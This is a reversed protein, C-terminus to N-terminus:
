GVNKPPARFKELAETDAPDPRYGDGSVLRGLYRVEQKAFVCKDARLKIGRSLLRKLVLKINTVHEEFTKAYILMDDLYGECISGKYDGLMLNIYRQFAPPANKLGFPMRIWEMLTWPTSFATLHRFEEAIYGQHYAKSMDLTTFWKQGGLTDLIDQIRPIPQADPITKENLKRYDICMRMTGDKKRVCVIPSSYSSYSQRIWGNALLDDIYNKVESYLNPPIRRYAATVPVQDVLNISMKFDPIDGIDADNKSFVDKVEDLVKELMEQQDPELHSLDWTKGTNGEAGEAEVEREEGESNGVQVENVSVPKKVDLLGMMPIVASVSHVSGIVMGKPITQENRSLNLADVIMYNTKGRKLESVAENFTLEEDDKMVPSFYVKQSEGNAPVKVRCKLRMRHGAPVVVTKPARIETLFDPNEAKGQMLATLPAVDVDKGGCSLASKLLQQQEEDGKLVLHEIVNYGIIPESMDDSAVLVPVWFDTEEGSLSFEILLVGDFRISTSNAAKVYLDRELFESVSHIKCNPFHKRVWKRDVMSIMSGTDWLLKFKKGGLHCKLMPKEGILNLIKKKVKFDIQHQRTSVNRYLNDMQMQHCQVIASCYPSHYNLHSKQCAKSCYPTAKCKGCRRVNVESACVCCKEKSVKEGDSGLGEGVVEGSSDTESSSEQEVPLLPVASEGLATESSSEQEVPLLPVVSEVLATEEGTSM